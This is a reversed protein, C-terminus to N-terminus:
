KNAAPRKILEYNTSRGGATEKQLIDKKNFRSYRKFIVEKSYESAAYKFLNLGELYYWSFVGKKLLWGYTKPKRFPLEFEKAAIFFALLSGIIFIVISIFWGLNM